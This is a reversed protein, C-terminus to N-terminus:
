INDLDGNNVNTIDDFYCCTCNKIDTYKLKENNVELM